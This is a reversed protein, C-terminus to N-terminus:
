AVKTLLYTGESDAVKFIPFDWQNLQNINLLPNKEIEKEPDFLLKLEKSICTLLINEESTKEISSKDKQEEMMLKDDDDEAEDDGEREKDDEGDDLPQAKEKLKAVTGPLQRM